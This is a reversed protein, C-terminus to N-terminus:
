HESQTTDREGDDNGIDILEADPWACRPCAFSSILADDQAAEALSDWHRRLEHHGCNACRRIVTGM